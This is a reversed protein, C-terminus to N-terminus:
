IFNVVYIVVFLTITIIYGVHCVRNLVEALIQWKQEDEMVNEAKDAFNALKQVLVDATIDSSVENQDYIINEHYTLQLNKGHYLLRVVKFNLFKMWFTPFKTNKTHLSTLLTAASVSLFVLLLLISIVEAIIPLDDPGTAPLVESVVLLEVVFSFFVTLGTTVKEGGSFPLFFIAFSLLTLLVTPLLIVIVYYDPNRKLILDIKIQHGQENM